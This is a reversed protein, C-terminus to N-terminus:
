AHLRRKNKRNMIAIGFAFLTSGLAGFTGALIAWLLTSGTAPLETSAGLVEGERIVNISTGSVDSRVVNVDTGVFVGTEDNAIVEGGVANIGQAWALDRYTGSQIEPSIDAVYTLTVTEGDVMDGLDWIGPSAYEHILAGSLPGRISSDATWSGAHYIFGLSPLDKVVVDNVASDSATITLTFLVNAGPSLDAGGTNNSKAIFLQPKVFVNGFDYAPALSVFNALEELDGPNDDPLTVLHCGENQTPYTQQWSNQAVECVKYKGPFLHDFWYWGFDANQGDTETETSSILEYSEGILKYLNITWGGLLTEDGNKSGNADQDSWKRGHIVGNPSNIFTCEVTEDKGVFVGYVTNGNASGSDCSASVLNYGEQTTESIRYEGTALDNFTASGSAGTLESSAGSTDGGAGEVTMEWAEGPFQDQTTQVNGDVDIVKRVIITGTDRTNTITCSKEEALALTVSGSADCDGSIVSTYGDHDGENVTHTGANFSNQIGSQVQTQDVYLDFDDPQANGGDVVKTVTLKAPIDDNTITCTVNQGEALTVTGNLVSPCVRDGTISVFSYGELGTEGITVATNAEVSVAQGSTTPNGNVTLGFDTADAQGGNDNIVNKILTLTPAEDDNVITCTKTEGPLLTVNGQADCDLGWGSPAYGPLTTESVTYSGANVQHAGWSSPTTGIFVDFDSEVNDGGNDNLVTKSLILTAKQDDNVITCTVDEDLGLTISSGNQNGGNCDWSSATYGSPGGTEDLTYSIGATVTESAPSTGSFSRTSGTASLTWSAATASGGDDNRVGKFLTLTPAIDNNTITCNLNQGETLTVTDGLSSPCQADGSFSVFSYGTLGAEDLAIPTNADVELTQGSLVPVAGITLGFDNVGATGGDDNLVIKTLTVTPAIDDNTITCTKADGLALVITGDPNCDGGWSSATYGSVSVESATHAGASVTAATGSTVTTDDIKLIFDSVASDGGNDNVVTKVLTLTPAIDNNTITCTTVEGSTVSVNSCNSYTTQYGTVAPETVTYTGPSVLLDNQGDSEFPTVAGSNVQFSFDSATKTGGNDNVVTKIVRLTGRNRTNTITCVVDANNAVNVTWPNTGTTSIITGASNVCQVSSTYSALNTQTGATEAFVRNGTSVIKEGTTGGNGVDSAYTVGEIQLNFKGSDSAPVLNKIVELKGTQSATSAFICDSPDSNPEQSPFSCVDLLSSTIGGVEATSVSCTATTDQPYSSGGSFPDSNSQAVSCGTSYPSAVLAAGACRDAKTDSCSYIRPSNVDQALPSGKLTVCSAFNAFGDDDTDYLSCADYSNNGSGNIEDWNWSVNLSSPLGGYTACAHTLDKQGPQDNVGQADNYCGAAPSDTFTTRAVEAADLTVIVEYYPRYIGDLQYAYVFEGNEDATIQSSASTAPPDSSRITLTYTENPVFGTGTIIATDTPAYDAKDTTLTASGDPNISDLDLSQAEVNQVLLADLQGHTTPSPTITPTATTSVGDLIQGNEQPPGTEKPPESTTQVTTEEHPTSTPTQTETPAPTESPTPADSPSIEEPPTPSETETPTPNLTSEPTPTADTQEPTQEPTITPSLEQAVAPAIQPLVSWAPLLTQIVMSSAALFSM